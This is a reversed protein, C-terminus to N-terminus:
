IIAGLRRFLPALMLIADLGCLRPPVSKLTRVARIFVSSGLMGISFCQHQEHIHLSFQVAVLWDQNMNRPM